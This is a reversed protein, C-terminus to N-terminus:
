FFSMGAHGVVAFGREGAQHENRSQQRSRSNGQGGAVRRTARTLVNAGYTMCRGVCCRAGLLADRIRSTCGRM